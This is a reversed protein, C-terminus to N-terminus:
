IASMEPLPKLTPGWVDKLDLLQAVPEPPRPIFGAAELIPDVVPHLREEQFREWHERSEWVDIYQLGQEHAVVLHVILGDPPEPGLQAKIRQYAATDIPVKM